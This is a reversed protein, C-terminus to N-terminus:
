SGLRGLLEAATDCEDILAVWTRRPEVRVTGDDAGPAPSRWRRRLRALGLQRGRDDDPWKQLCRGRFYARTDIRAARHGRGGVEDPDTLRRCGPAPRWAVQEPRLDHYQLGIAALRADGWDLGHRERYGDILRHKAVWDVSTPWRRRTPRSGPSCPRGAARAGRRRGGRRRVRPRPEDAYKRARELYEWQVELATITGGDALELTSSLSLDYSVARLAPSRPPAAVPRRRLM